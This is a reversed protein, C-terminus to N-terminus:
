TLPSEFGSSMALFLQPARLRPMPVRTRSATEPRKRSLPVSFRREFVVNTSRIVQRRGRWDPANPDLGGKVPDWRGTAM